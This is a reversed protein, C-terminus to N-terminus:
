IQIATYTHTASYADAELEWPVRLSYTITTRLNGGRTGDTVRTDTGFQTGPPAQYTTRGPPGQASFTFNESPISQVTGRLDGDKSVIIRWSANSNLTATVTQTYPTERPQLAGGGFNVASTSIAFQLVAAAARDNMPDTVTEGGVDFDTEGAPAQKEPAVQAATDGREEGGEPAPVIAAEPEAEPSPTGPNEGAVAPASSTSPDAPPHPAGAEQAPALAHPALLLIAAAAVAIATRTSIRKVPKGVKVQAAQLDGRM